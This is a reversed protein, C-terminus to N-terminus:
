FRVEFFDSSYSDSSKYEVDMGTVEASRPGTKLLKLFKEMTKKDAEAVAKVEGTPLNKVYGKVGLRRANKKTFYRFGVMQVRGKILIETVKKESM